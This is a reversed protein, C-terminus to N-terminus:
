GFAGRRTRERIQEDFFFMCLVLYPFFATMSIKCENRKITLVCEGFGIFFLISKNRRFARNENREKVCVSLLPVSEVTTRIYM